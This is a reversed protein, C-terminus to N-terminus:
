GMGQTRADRRARARLTGARLTHSEAVLRSIRALIALGSGCAPSLRHWRTARPGGGACALRPPTMAARM